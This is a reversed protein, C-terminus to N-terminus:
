TIPGALEALCAQLHLDFMSSCPWVGRSGVALCLAEDLGGQAFPGVGFVPCFRFFSVSVQLWPRVVVVMLSGM